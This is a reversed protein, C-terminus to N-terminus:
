LPEIARSVAEGYRVAGKLNTRSSYYGKFYLIFLGFLLQLQFESVTWWLSNLYPLFDNGENVPWDIGPTSTVGAFYESL